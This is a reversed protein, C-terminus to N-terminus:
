GRLRRLAEVRRNAIRTRNPSLANGHRKIDAGSFKQLATNVRVDSHLPWAIVAYFARLTEPGIAHVPRSHPTRLPIDSTATIICHSTNRSRTTLIVTCGVSAQNRPLSSRIDVRTRTSAPM